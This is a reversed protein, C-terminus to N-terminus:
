FPVRVYSREKSIQSIKLFVEKSSCRRVVSERIQFMVYSNEMPNDKEEIKCLEVVFESTEMLIWAILLPPNLPRARGM